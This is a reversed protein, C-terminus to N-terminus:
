KNELDLWEPAPVSSFIYLSHKIFIYIFVCIILFFLFLYLFLYVSIFKLFNYLLLYIFLNPIFLM